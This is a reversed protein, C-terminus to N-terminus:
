ADSYDCLSSKLITTKFKIPSNTKYRRRSDNNKEFLRKTLFKSTQNLTIGLFEHKKKFEM